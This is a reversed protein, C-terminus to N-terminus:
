DILSVDSVTKTCKGKNSCPWCALGNSKPTCGFAESACDSTTCSITNTAYLNSNVTTVLLTSVYTEGKFVLVYQKDPTEKVSLDTFYGDIGSLRSLNTNYTKLMAPKDVTLVINGHDLKGILTGLQEQAKVPSNLCAILVIFFISNSFKKMSSIKHIFGTKRKVASVPTEATPWTIKEM